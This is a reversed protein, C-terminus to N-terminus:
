SVAFCFLFFLVNILVLYFIIKATTPSGEINPTNSKSNGFGPVHPAPAKKPTNTKQCEEVRPISHHKESTKAGFDTQIPNRGEKATGPKADIPRHFTAETKKSFVPLSDKSATPQVVDKNTKQITTPGQQTNSQLSAPTSQKNAQVPEKKTDAPPTFETKTTENEPRIPPPTTTPVAPEKPKPSPKQEPVQINRQESLEKSKKYVELIDKAKNSVLKSDDKKSIEELRKLAFVIQGKKGYDLNHKLHDLAGSRRLYDGDTLADEIHKPLPISKVAPNPNRALVIHGERKGGLTPKQVHSIKGSVYDHLETVTIIGDGNIDAKGTELGEILYHTFLSKDTEGIVNEGEWAYQLENSATLLVTGQGHHFNKLSDDMKEGIVDGASKSGISAAGSFCCDFIIVKSESPCKEMERVIFDSDVGDAQIYDTTTDEAALYLNDDHKVGHGTFYLLLLDKRSKDKYFDVVSKLIERSSKNTLIDVKEFIGIEKNLLIDRLARADAEPADLDKLKPDQYDSNCILLAHRTAVVKNSDLRNSIDISCRNIQEQSTESDLPHVETGVEVVANLNNQRTQRSKLWQVLFGMFPKVVIPILEIALTAALGMAEKQGGQDKKSDTIKPEVGQNEIQDKLEKTLDDLTSSDVQDFDKSYLTITLKKNEESM